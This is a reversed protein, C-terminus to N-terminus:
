SLKILEFSRSIRAVIKRPCKSISAKFVQYVSNFKVFHKSRSQNKLLQVSSLSHNKNTGDLYDALKALNNAILNHLDEGAWVPFISISIMMVLGVGLLITFIRIRAYSLVDETRYGNVSVMTFTLIFITFGYDFRAKLYPFFRLFTM